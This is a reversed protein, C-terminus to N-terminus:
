TPRCTKQTLGGSAACTMGTPCDTASTCNKVCLGSVGSPQTTFTTPLLADCTYGTGCAIAPATSGTVCTKTCLGSSATTGKLCPCDTSTTCSAGFAKPYKFTCAGKTTDCKWTSPAGSWATTCDTDTACTVYCSQDHADCKSGSPCDSDATCGGVCQGYAAVGAGDDFTYELSCANKGACPTSYTGSTSFKCLPRCEGTGTSGPDLCIGRSGDCLVSTTADPTCTDYQMCVATPNLPGALFADNSCFGTGSAAGICDGDVGCLEGVHGTGTGGTDTPPTGTDTPETGTDDPPVSTDDPPVSTDEPPVSTDEVPTGTDPASSDDMPTVGTEDVPADEDTGEDTTSVADGHGSDKKTTVGPSDGSAACGVGAMALVVFVFRAKM